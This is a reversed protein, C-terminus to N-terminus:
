EPTEDLHEVLEDFEEGTYAPVVEIEGEVEQNYRFAAKSAADADPFQGVAIIDPEGLTYYIAELEGGVAEVAQEGLERREAARNMQQLENGSLNIMGIFRQM